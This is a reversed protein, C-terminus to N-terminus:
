QKLDSVSFGYEMEYVKIDGPISYMRSKKRVLPTTGSPAFGQLTRHLESAFEMREIAQESSDGGQILEDNCDIALRILVGGKGRQFGRGLDAWEIDQIDILICPFPVPYTDEVTEVEDLQGYDEDVWNVGETKEVIRDRIDKFLQEMM